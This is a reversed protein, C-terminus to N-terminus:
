LFAERGTRRVMDPERSLLGLLDDEEDVGLVSQSGRRACEDAMPMRLGPTTKLMNLVLGVDDDVGDEEEVAPGDDDIDDDFMSGWGRRTRVLWVGEPWDTKADSEARSGLCGKPGLAVANVTSSVLLM